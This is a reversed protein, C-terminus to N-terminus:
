YTNNDVKKKPSDQKVYDFENLNKCWSHYVSRLEETIDNHRSQVNEILKGYSDPHNLTDHLEPNEEPEDDNTEDFEGSKLYYNILAQRYRDKSNMRGRAGSRGQSAALSWLEDVENWKEWAVKIKKRLILLERNHPNWKLGTEVEELARGFNQLLLYQKANDVYHSCTMDEPVDLQECENENCDPSRLEAVKRDEKCEMSFSDPYWLKTESIMTLLSAYHDLGLVSGKNQSYQDRESNEHIFPPQGNIFPQITHEKWKM